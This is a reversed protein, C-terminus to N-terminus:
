PTRIADESINLTLRYPLLPFVVLRMNLLAPQYSNALQVGAADSMLLTGDRRVSM